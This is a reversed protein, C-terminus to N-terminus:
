TNNTQLKNLKEEEEKKQKRMERSLKLQERRLPICEEPVERFPIHHIMSIVKKVYRDELNKVEEAERDRARKKCVIYRGTHYFHDSPVWEECYSCWHLDFETRMQYILIAKEREEETKHYYKLYYRHYCVESCFVMTGKIHGEEKKFYNGCALCKVIGLKKSEMKIKKLDVKKLSIGSM